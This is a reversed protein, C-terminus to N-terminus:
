WLSGTFDKLRLLPSERATEVQKIFDHQLLASASWRDNPNMQLSKSLFDLLLPSVGQEEPAPPKKSTQIMYIAKLPSLDDNPPKGDVMEIVM